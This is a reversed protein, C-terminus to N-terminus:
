TWINEEAGQEWVGDIYTRGKTYLFSLKVGLCILLNLFVDPAVLQGSVEM